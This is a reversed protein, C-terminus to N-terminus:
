DQFRSSLADLVGDFSSFREGVVDVTLGFGEVGKATVPGHAAVVMRPWRQKVKDWNWDVADLGKLLGEVEATSTFVIADLRGDHEVLVDACHPGIWKTEYAPIRVAIWGASELDGLFDPVVDPENLGIVAPVPCLVKRGCGNGLSKVLGAPTAIDPV